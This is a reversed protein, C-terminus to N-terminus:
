KLMPSWSPETNPNAQQLWRPSISTPVGADLNTTATDGPAPWIAWDPGLDREEYDAGLNDGESEAESGDNSNLYSHIGIGAAVFALLGVLVAADVPDLTMAVVSTNLPSSGCSEGNAMAAIEQLAAEQESGLRAVQQRLAAGNDSQYNKYWAALQCQEEGTVFTMGLSTFDQVAALAVAPLDQNSVIQRPGMIAM